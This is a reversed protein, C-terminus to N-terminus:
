FEYSAGGMPIIKARLGANDLKFLASATLYLHKFPNAKIGGGANDMAYCANYPKVSDQNIYSVPAPTLTLRPGNIVVQGVFEGVLTLKQTLRFDAGGSYLFSTPLTNNESLISSSNWQYELNINPTLRGRRSLVFYPKIGYAGSGLFNAADGSPFRVEGGVAVSTREGNLVNAKLNVKVDGVGGASGPFYQGGYPSTEPIPYPSYPQGVPYTVPYIALQTFTSLNVHSFPVILSVDIKNTLGFTVLPTFQDVSLYINSKAAYYGIGTAENFQVTPLNKLGIGDISGFGYHQYSFSILLKHKGVTEGRQTLITGLSGQSVTFVGLTKNLTLDSGTVATALSLQGLESAIAAPLGSLEGNLVNGAQTADAIECALNTPKVANNQGPCYIQAQALAGMGCVSMSLLVAIRIRKLM